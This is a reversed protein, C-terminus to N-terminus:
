ASVGTGVIAQSEAGRMFSATLARVRQAEAQLSERIRHREDPTLSMDGLESLCIRVRKVGSRRALESQSLRLSIRLAKEDSM